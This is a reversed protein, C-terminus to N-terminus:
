MFVNRVLGIRLLPARLIEAVNPVVAIRLKFVRADWDDVAM